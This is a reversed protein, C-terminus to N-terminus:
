PNSEHKSGEPIKGLIGNIYSRSEPRCYKKALVIAENVAVKKPVDSSNVIEHVAIRMLTLDTKPLRDITWKTLLPEIIEDLSLRTAYVDRCLDDFFLLDTEDMVYEQTFLDRQEVPDDQRFERQHLFLFAFERAKKRSM